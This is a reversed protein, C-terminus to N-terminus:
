YHVSHAIRNVEPEHARKFAAAQFPPEIYRKDSRYDPLAFLLLPILLSAALLWYRPLAQKRTVDSLPWKM